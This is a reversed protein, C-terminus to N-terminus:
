VDEWKLIPKDLAAAMMAFTDRLDEDDNCLVPVPEETACPKGDFYYVEYIALTGERLVVRYNWSAV